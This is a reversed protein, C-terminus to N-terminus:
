LVLGKMPLCPELVFMRENYGEWRGTIDSISNVPHWSTRRSIMQEMKHYIRYYNYLERNKSHKPRHYELWVSYPVALPCLIRRLTTGYNRGEGQEGEEWGVFQLKFAFSRRCNTM